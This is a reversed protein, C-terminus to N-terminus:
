SRALEIVEGSQKIILIKKIYKKLNFQKELDSICQKEPIKIRHLDFIIYHSQKVALRINQEITRKAKGSPCKMEWEVGDMLIDATHIGPVNSPPIFVVDHGLESFIRATELEHKEPLTKLQSIDIIGVKM